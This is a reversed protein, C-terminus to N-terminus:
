PQRGFLPLLVTVTTGEGPQSFLQVTGHHLEVCRKVLLLGLGTGPRTGVNAGRHFAKFLHQQDDAYIGIGYDRITCVANNGAREIAFSVTSGPESYKVANSLLNTFIHGLLREDAEANVEPAALNLEICCRRNTASRVEDVLRRCFRGLDMAAPQFELKGADLRSLVLMEEMLAAMRRTNRSISDLQQERDDAPMKQYFERLLEASSQIIGLPTRFEHSVMSVFNSKLQNLETERELTRLLEVEAQKRDSIDVGMVLLHEMGNLEITVGSILMTSIKGHRSRVRCERGRISGGLRVDSWYREREALDEWLRLDSGTRGLVEDRNYGAWNLFADNVLVLKADSSRFIMTLIPSAHFAASFRAESEALAIQSRKREVGLAFSDAISGLTELIDESLPKRAFMGLVGLLRNEILLPYGAFAVMGERKAWAPDSVWRDSQVTNILLPKKERAILGIKLQDVRVRSHSGDLRTYCGASAQLELIQTAENLTWVRAFAVDLHRVVL